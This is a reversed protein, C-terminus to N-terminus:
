IESVKKLTVSMKQKLDWFFMAAEKGSRSIGMKFLFEEVEEIAEMLIQNQQQLKENESEILSITADRCFIGDPIGEEVVIKNGDLDYCFDIELRERLVSIYDLIEIFHDCSFEYFYQKLDVLADENDPNKVQQWLQRADEIVEVIPKKMKIGEIQLVEIITFSM